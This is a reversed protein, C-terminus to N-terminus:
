LLYVKLDTIQMTNVTATQKLHFEVTAFSLRTYIGIRLASIIEGNMENFAQLTSFYKLCSKYTM